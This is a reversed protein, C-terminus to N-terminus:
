ELAWGPTRPSVARACEILWLTWGDSSSSLILLWKQRCFYSAHLKHKVYVFDPASQMFNTVSRWQVTLQLAGTISISLQTPTAPVDIAQESINTPYLSRGAENVSWVRFYHRLGKTVIPATFNFLFAFPQSAILNASVGTQFSQDTSQQLEFRLIKSMDAEYFGTDPPRIWQLDIQFPSRVAAEFNSPPLPVSIAESSVAAAFPGTGAENKAAVRFLYTRGKVLNSFLKSLHKAQGEPSTNDDSYWLSGFSSSTAHGIEEAVQLIYATLPRLHGTVGTDESINWFFTIELPTNIRTRLLIPASPLEVGQEQALASMASRGADNFTFVRFYFYTPGSSPLVVTANFTANSYSRNVIAAGGSFTNDGFAQQLTYTGLARGAGGVGTDAPQVWQLFLTRPAIVRVTLGTPATPVQVSQENTVAYHRGVGLQNQAFVRFWYPDKRAASFTVDLTCTIGACFNLGRAKETVTTFSANGGFIVESDMEVIYATIPEFHGGRGTNNPRQWLLRITLPEQVFSIM